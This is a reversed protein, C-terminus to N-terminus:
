RLRLSFDGDDDLNFDAASMQNRHYKKTSGIFNQDIHHGPSQL